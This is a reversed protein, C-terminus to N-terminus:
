IADLGSLLEMLGAAAAGIGLGKKINRSAEKKIKKREEARRENDSRGGDGRREERSDRGDRRDRGGDMEVPYKGEYSSHQSHRGGKPRSPRERERM